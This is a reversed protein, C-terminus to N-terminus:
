DNFAGERLRQVPQLLYDIVRRKGNLIDVEATMGPIIQVPQGSADYITGDTQIEAIFFEAPDGAEPQVANAGIRRITGDLAGYRTFDYATLKVRVQQGAGLFAIDQPRIHAEIVLDEDLPVIEIIEEGSQVTAGITRRHMNNVIGRVPSRLTARAALSELAPLAPRLSALEANAGTLDHLAEARFRDRAAEITQRIEEAAVDGRRLGAEARAVRNSQEEHQSQLTLLTLRPEVGAEVLPAIINIQESLLGSIRRATALDLGTEAQEQERQELKRELVAIESHLERKRAAFLAQEGGVLEPANAATEKAFALPLGEVEATLRAIQAQLAFYRQMERDLQSSQVLSDLEMLATGADVIDGESVFVARILGEDPATVRQVDGAPVVRGPARTIDDVETLITWLLGAALAALVFLLLFSERLRTRGEIDAVLADLGNDNRKM